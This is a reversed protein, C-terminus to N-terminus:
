RDQPRDPLFPLPVPEAPRSAPRCEPFASGGSRFPAGKHGKRQSTHRRHTKFITLLYIAETIKYFGPLFCFKVFLQISAILQHSGRDNRAQWRCHRALLRRRRNRKARPRRATHRPLRRYRHHTMEYDCSIGVDSREESHCPPYATLYVPIQSLTQM